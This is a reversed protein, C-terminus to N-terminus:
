CTRVFVELSMIRRIQYVNRSGQFYCLILDRRSRFRFHQKPSVRTDELKNFLRDINYVNKMYKLLKAFYNKRM